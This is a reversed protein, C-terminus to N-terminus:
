NKSSRLILPKTMQIKNKVTKLIKTLPPVTWCHTKSQRQATSLSVISMEDCIKLHRLILPKTM